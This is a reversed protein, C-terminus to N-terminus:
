MHSMLGLVIIYLLNFKQLKKIITKILRELTAIKKQNNMKIKMKELMIKETNLCRIRKMLM